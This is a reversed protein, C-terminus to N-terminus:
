KNQLSFITGKRGLFIINEGIEKCLFIFITSGPPPSHSNVARPPAPNMLALLKQLGM